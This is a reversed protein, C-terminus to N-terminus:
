EIDNSPKIQFPFSSQDFTSDTYSMRQKEASKSLMEEEKTLIQWQKQEFEKQEQIGQSISSEMMKLSSPHGSTSDESVMKM